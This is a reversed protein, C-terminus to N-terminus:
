IIEVEKIKSWEGNMIIVQSTSVNFYKALVKVIAANARGGVPPETVSVEYTLEDIQRVKDGKARPKAKVTIKM